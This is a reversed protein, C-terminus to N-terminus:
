RLAVVVGRVIGAKVATGVRGGYARETMTDDRAVRQLPGANRGLSLCQITFGFAFPRLARGTLADGVYRGMPEATVCGKRLRGIGPVTVAAADGAVYVEPHSVSRLYEDVLAEGREDVALGSEAALPRVEFSAAWVTIDADARGGFTSLGAYGAGIVVVRGAGGTDETKM